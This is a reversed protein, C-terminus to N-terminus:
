GQGGGLVCISLAGGVCMCVECVHGGWRDQAHLESLASRTYYAVGRHMGLAKTCVGRVCMAGGGTRPTCSRCHPARTTLRVVTCAWLRPARLFPRCPLHAPAPAVSPHWPCHPLPLTAPVLNHTHVQPAPQRAHSLGLARPVPQPTRAPQCTIAYGPRECACCQLWLAVSRDAPLRDGGM